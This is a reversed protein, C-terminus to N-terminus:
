KSVLEFSRDVEISKSRRRDSELIDTESPAGVPFGDCFIGNERPKWCVHWPKACVLSRLGQQCELYGPPYVNMANSQMSLIMSKGFM